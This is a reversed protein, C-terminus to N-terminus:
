SNDNIYEDAIKSALEESSIGLAKATVAMMQSAAARSILGKGYDDGVRMRLHDCAYTYPYRADKNTPKM